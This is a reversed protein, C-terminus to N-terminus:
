KSAANNNAKLRENELWIVRAQVERETVPKNNERLWKKIEDRQYKSIDSMYYEKGGFKVYADEMESADIFSAPYISDEMRDDFFIVDTTIELLIQKFQQDNPTKGDNSDSWLQVRSDVEAIFQRADKGAASQQTAITSINDGKSFRDEVGALAQYVLQQRSFISNVSPKSQQMADLKNLNTESVKNIEDDLNITKFQEYDERAMRLLERFRKQQSIELDIKAQAKKSTNIANTINTMHENSVRSILDPDANKLTNGPILLHGLLKDYAVGEESTDVAEQKERLSLRQLGNMKAKLEDPIEEGEDIHILAREYADQEVRDVKVIERDILLEQQEGNMGNWLDPYDKQIQAVTMGRVQYLKAAKYSETESELTNKLVDEERKDMFVIMDAGSMKLIQDNTVKPQTNDTRWIGYTTWVNNKAKDWNDVRIRKEEAQFYKKLEEQKTPSMAEWIDKPIQDIATLNSNTVLSQAKDDAEKYVDQEEKDRYVQNHEIISRVREKIDGPLADAMDTMETDSAGSNWINTVEDAVRGDLTDKDIKNKITIQTANKIENINKYYYENAKDYRDTLLLKEIVSEHSPSTFELMYKEIIEKDEENESEPNIGLANQIKSKVERKGLNFRTELAKPNNIAEEYNIGIGQIVNAIRADTAANQFVATQEASHSSIRALESNLRQNSVAKWQDLIRPDINKSIKKIYDRLKKEIQDKQNLADKGALSMFGGPDDMNERFFSVVNNDQDKLVAQDFKDRQKVAQAFAQEGLQSVVQGRQTNAQAISSGFAEDITHIQQEGGQIPSDKVQGIQYQPVTAM